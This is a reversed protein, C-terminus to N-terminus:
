DWSSIPNQLIVEQLSVFTKLKLYSKENSSKENNMFKM